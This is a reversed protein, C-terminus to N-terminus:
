RRALSLSWKQPMAGVLQKERRGEVVLMWPEEFLVSCLCLLGFCCQFAVTWTGFAWSEVNLMVGDRLCDLVRDM